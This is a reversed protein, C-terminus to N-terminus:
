LVEDDCLRFHCWGSRGGFHGIERHAGSGLSSGFAISQTGGLHFNLGHPFTFLGKLTIWAVIIITVLLLLKDNGERIGVTISMQMQSM